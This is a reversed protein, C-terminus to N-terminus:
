AVKLSSIFNQPFKCCWVQKHVQKTSCDDCQGRYGHIQTATVQPNPKYTVTEYQDNVVTPIPDETRVITYEYYKDKSSLRM